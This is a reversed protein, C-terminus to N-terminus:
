AVHHHRTGKILSVNFPPFFFVCVCVMRRSQVLLGNAAGSNKFALQRDVHRAQPDNKVADQGIKTKNEFAAPRNFFQVLFFVLL